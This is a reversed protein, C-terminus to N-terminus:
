CVRDLWSCECPHLAAASPGRRFRDSVPCGHRRLVNSSTLGLYEKRLSEPRSYRQEKHSWEADVHHSFAVTDVAGRLATNVDTFLRYTADSRISDNRSIIGSANRPIYHGPRFPFRFAGADSHNIYIGLDLVDRCVLLRRLPYWLRTGIAPYMWLGLSELRHTSITHSVQVYGPQVELRCPERARRQAAVDASPTGFNQWVGPPVDHVVSPDPSNLKGVAARLAAYVAQAPAHSRAPPM